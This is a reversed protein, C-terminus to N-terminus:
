GVSSCGGYVARSEAQASCLYYYNRLGGLAGSGKGWNGRSEAAEVAMWSGWEWPFSSAIQGGQFLFGTM